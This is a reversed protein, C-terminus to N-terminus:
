TQRLLTRSSCDRPIYVFPVNRQPVVPMHREKGAEYPYAKLILMYQYNKVKRLDAMIALPQSPALGVGM